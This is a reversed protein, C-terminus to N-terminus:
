PREPSIHLPGVFKLEWGREGRELEAVFAPGLTGARRWIFRHGQTARASQVWRGIRATGQQVSCHAARTESALGRLEASKSSELGQALLGRVVLLDGETIEQAPRSQDRHSASSDSPAEADGGADASASPVPQTPPPSLEPPHERVEIAEKQCGVALASVTMATALRAASPIARSLDTRPGATERAPPYATPASAAAAHGHVHLRLCRGAVELLDQDLMVVPKDVPLQLSREGRHLAIRGSADRRRAVLREDASVWLEVAVGAVRQWLVSADAGVGLGPQGGPLAVCCLYRARSQFADVDEVCVAIPRPRGPM